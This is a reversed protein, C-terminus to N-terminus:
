HQVSQIPEPTFVTQTCKTRKLPYSLDEVKQKCNQVIIYMNYICISYQKFFNVYVNTYVCNIQYSFRICADNNICMKFDLCTIVHNRQIGVQVQFMQESKINLHM